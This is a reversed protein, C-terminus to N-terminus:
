ITLKAKLAGGEALQEVLAPRDNNTIAKRFDALRAIYRDLVPLLAGRNSAFLESWLAPSPAGVRVMDKFSGASFGSHELALPERVYASSIIHCLQSTFAIMEDHHEPTTIVTRAFGLEAFLARLHDLLAPSTGPQPTLIMSAGKFLDADSNAFGSVEKGAMPHGGIFTWRRGAEVGNLARCVPGKIGCTDIVAAGDKFEAAHLRIWDVATQPALAVFVVDADRVDVPDGKDFGMVDHGARKAAKFVSGGILGMGAIAVAAPAASTQAAPAASTQAAPAASTQGGQPPSTASSQLSAPAASGGLNPRQRPPRTTALPRAASTQGGQPPSFDYNTTM